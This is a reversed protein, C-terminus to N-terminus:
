AEIQEKEKLLDQYKGLIIYIDACSMFCLVANKHKLLKSVTEVSVKESNPVGEIIKDSSANPYDEQRERDCHIDM